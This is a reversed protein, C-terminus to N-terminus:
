EDFQFSIERSIQKMADAGGLHVRLCSRTQCVGRGIACVDIRLKATEARLRDLENAAEAMTERLETLDTTM